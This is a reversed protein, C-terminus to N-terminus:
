ADLISERMHQALRDAQGGPNIAKILDFGPCNFIFCGWSGNIFDMPQGCHVCKPADSEPETSKQENLAQLEEVLLEELQEDSIVDSINDM